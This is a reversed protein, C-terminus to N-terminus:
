LAGCIQCPRLGVPVAERPIEDYTASALTPCGNLHFRTLGPAVCVSSTHPPQSCLNDSVVAYTGADGGALAPIPGGPRLWPALVHSKRGVLRARSALVTAAVVLAALGLGAVGVALGTIANDVSGTNAAKQFGIAIVALALVLGAVPAVVRARAPTEAQPATEVLPVEVDQVLAQEIRDLKRWEDHLDAQLRLMVGVAVLFLAGLGGSTVTAIQDAVFRSNAVSQFTIVLVIAGTAILATGTVRDWQARLWIVADRM